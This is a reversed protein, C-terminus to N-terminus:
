TGRHTLSETWHIGQRALDLMGQGVVWMRHRLLASARPSAIRCEAMPRPSARWHGKYAEDGRLFDYVRRGEAIARKITAINALRGPEDALDEPALGSQYSYIARLSALQYEAAIPRGEVEIWHLGLQGRALLGRVAEAHFAAFRPSAFSGPEGLGKRRRQHLDVLIAMGRELDRECEVTHLTARGSALLREDLRRVQKRHSKSLSALYEEWTEPLDIRWCNPGARRHVACGREALEAALLDMMRDEADIGSLEMADWAAPGDARKPDADNRTLAAALAAAARREDTARCLVSLYDSCVEGGGLFRLVRGSSRSRTVYWPAVALLDGGDDRVSLVHLHGEAYHRWWGTMWAWSRFPVGRTLRDWGEALGDLEDLSTALTVHM